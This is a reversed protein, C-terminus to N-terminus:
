ISHIDWPQDDVIDELVEDDINDRKDEEEIHDSGNVILIVSFDTTVSM